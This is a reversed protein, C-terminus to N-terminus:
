SGWSGSMLRGFALTKRGDQVLRGAGDHRRQDIVFGDRRVLQLRDAADWACSETVFDKQVRLV